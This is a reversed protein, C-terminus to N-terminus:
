LDVALVLQVQELDFGDQVTITERRVAGRRMRQGGRHQRHHLGKSNVALLKM